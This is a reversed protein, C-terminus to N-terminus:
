APFEAVSMEAQSFRWNAGSSDYAQIDVWIAAGAVKEVNQLVFTESQSMGGATGSQSTVTYTNGVTTGSGPTNCAPPVGTQWAAQWQTNVNSTAPTSVQFTLTIFLDGVASSPVNFSLGFGGMKYTNATTVTCTNANSDTGIAPLLNTPTPAEMVALTPNSYVWAAGNSDVAEVDVWYTTSPTLGTIVFGAKQSAGSAVAAQSTVTYTNGYATGTFGANCGPAAGTGYVVTYQTNIGSTAAGAENFTLKGYISGSFGTGGTTFTTGFGMMRAAGSNTDTCTHTDTSTTLNPSDTTQVDILAMDPNSYTWAAGSSDSAQVDFWYTTSPSLGSLTVGMSQSLGRVVAAQSKVTYAQGLATGTAASGCNPPAGAGYYLQWTSTIASTAPSDIQFAFSLYLNGSTIASTTYALGLGMMLPTGSTTDTCTNAGAGSITYPATSGRAPNCEITPTLQSFFSGSPCGDGSPLSTLTTQATVGNDTSFTILYPTSAAWIFRVPITMTSGQGVWYDFDETSNLYYHAVLTNTAPNYVYLDVVHVGFPSSNTLVFSSLAAFRIAGATNEWTVAFAGDGPCLSDVATQSADQGLSDLVIGPSNWTTGLNSSSHYQLCPCTFGAITTPNDFLVLTTGSISLGAQWGLTTSEITQEATNTAAAMTTFALTWFKLTGTTQGVAANALGAFYMTAGIMDASSSTLSYDTIGTLAISNWANTALATQTVVALTGTSPSTASGTEYMLIVGSASLTSIAPFMINHANASLAGLAAPAYNTPAANSGCANPEWGYNSGTTACAEREYVAIATAGQHVEVWINGATDIAMQIPGLANATTAVQAPAFTWSITGAPAANTGGQALTGVGLQFDAAGVKGIALYITIGVIEVDFDPGVTYGATIVSPISRPTQWTAGDFSTSYQYAGNCTFFDWWMNATFYLKARNTPFTSTTSCGTAVNFNSTTSPPFAGFQGSTVSLRTSAAQTNTNSAKNVQQNYSAFSNFITVLSAIAVVMILVFFISGVISSVGPRGRSLFRM